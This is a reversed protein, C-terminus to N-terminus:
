LKAAFPLTVAVAAFMLGGRVLKSQGASLEYALYGAITAAGALKANKANVIDKVM